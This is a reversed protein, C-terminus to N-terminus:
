RLHLQGADVWKRLASLGEAYREIFEFLLFGRMTVCKAVIQFMNAFAHRQPSDYQSVMGCISSRGGTNMAALAADLTAGGVNDFFVDVGDPCAASIAESFDLPEMGCYVIAADLGLEGRLYACKEGGGAIGM